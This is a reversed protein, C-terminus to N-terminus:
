SKKMIISYKAKDIDSACVNVVLVRLPGNYTHKFIVYLQSHQLGILQNYIQRKPIRKFKTEYEPSTILLPFSRM